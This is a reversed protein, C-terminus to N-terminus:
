KCVYVLFYDQIKKFQILLKQNQFEAVIETNKNIDFPHIKIDTIFNVNGKQYWKYIAEKCCWILTAKEKTLPHHRDNLIFKSSLRLAKNSIKEIDLGVKKKSIIIGTIKKSHSISIFNNGEIEPGGYKNYSINANPLLEKLLLRSSLFEKQRKENKFELNNSKNTKKTFYNLSNDSNLIAIKCDNEQIRQVIKM